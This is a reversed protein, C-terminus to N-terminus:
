ESINYRNYELLEFDDIYYRYMLEETIPTLMNELHPLEQLQLKQYDMKHFEINGAYRRKNGSNNYKIKKFKSVIDYTTDFNYGLSVYFNTLSNVLSSFKCLELNPTFDGFNWTQPLFHENIPNNSNLFILFNEFNLTTFTKSFLLKYNIEWNSFEHEGKKCFWYFSSLARTYPNRTICIKKIPTHINKDFRVFHHSIDKSFVKHQSIRYEDDTFENRHITAYMSRITHTGTRNTMALVYNNNKNYIGYM